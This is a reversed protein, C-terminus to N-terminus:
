VLCSLIREERGTVSLGGASNDWAHNGKEDLIWDSYEEITVHNYRDLVFCSHCSDPEASCSLPNGLCYVSQTTAYVARKDPVPISDAGTRASYNGCGTM